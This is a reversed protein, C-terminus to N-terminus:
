VGGVLSLGPRLRDDDVISGVGAIRLVARILGHRDDGYILVSHDSDGPVVAAISAVIESPVDTETCREIAALGEQWAHPNGRGGLYMLAVRGQGDPDVGLAAAAIW